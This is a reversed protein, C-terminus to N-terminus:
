AEHVADAYAPHEESVTDGNDEWDREDDRLLTNTLYLTENVSDILQDGKQELMSIKPHDGGLKGALFKIDQFHEEMLGFLIGKLEPLCIKLDSRQQNINDHITNVVEEIELRQKKLINDTMGHVPDLM